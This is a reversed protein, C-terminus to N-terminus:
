TIFAEGFISGYLSIIGTGERRRDFAQRAAKAGAMFGLIANEGAAKCDFGEPLVM